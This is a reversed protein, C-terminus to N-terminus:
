TVLLEDCHLGENLQNRLCKSDISSYYLYFFGAQFRENEELMRIWTPDM